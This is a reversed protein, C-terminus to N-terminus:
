KLFGKIQSSFSAPIYLGIYKVLGSQICHDLLNERSVLKEIMTSIGKEEEEVKYLIIRINKFTDDGAYGAFLEERLGNKGYLLKTLEWIIKDIPVEEKSYLQLFVYEPNIREVESIIQNEDKVVTGVCDLEQLQGLMSNIINDHYGFILVERSVEKKLLRNVESLLKEPSFPKPLFSDAGMVKFSDEMKGRATLVLIPIGSTTEDKKLEKYFEFGDMEPMLVDTVILDPSSEKVKQLGEKGNFATIIAYGSAELRMGIVELLDPEDDVVLIKKKM